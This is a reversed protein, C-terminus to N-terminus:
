ARNLATRSGRNSSPETFGIWRSRGNPLMRQCFSWFAFVELAFPLYGGYGLLPMEFVKPGDVFPVTYVWKPMSNVNWLEWFLGCTLGALCIVLTTDWRGRRLQAGISPNGLLTNIPDLFLFLGIWVLAFAYRPFALSVFFMALGALSLAILTEPKLKLRIWSRKTALKVFSSLFETTVFIAPMVTSFALSATLAYDIVGPPHPYIYRWNGLYHNAFEFLWWLPVSLVFLM